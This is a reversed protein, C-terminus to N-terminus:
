SSPTSASGSSVGAHLLKTGGTLTGGIVFWSQILCIVVTALRTYQNIKRQGSAGEKSIKELSPVAKALM